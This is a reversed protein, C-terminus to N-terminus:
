MNGLVLFGKAVIGKAIVPDGVTVLSVGPPFLEWCAWTRSLVSPIPAESCFQVHNIHIGLFVIGFGVVHVSVSVSPVAPLPVLSVVLVSGASSALV